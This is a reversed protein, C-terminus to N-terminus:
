VACTTELEVTEVGRRTRWSHHCGKRIRDSLGIDPEFIAVYNEDCATDRELYM